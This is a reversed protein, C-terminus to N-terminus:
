GRERVSWIKDIWQKYFNGFFYIASKMIFKFQEMLNSNDMLVNSLFFTQLFLSRIVNEKFMLIPFSILTFLNFSIILTKPVIENVLFNRDSNKNQIHFTERNRCRSTVPSVSINLTCVKVRNLTRELTIIM